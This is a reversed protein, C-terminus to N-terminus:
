LGDCLKAKWLSLRVLEYIVTNQKGEYKLDHLIFAVFHAEGDGVMYCVPIGAPELLGTYM